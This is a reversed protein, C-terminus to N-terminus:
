GAWGAGFAFNVAHYPRFYASTPDLIFRRAYQGLLYFTKNIRWRSEGLIIVGDAGHELGRAVILLALDVREAARVVLRSWLRHADLPPAYSYGFKAQWRAFELNFQGLAGQRWGAEGISILKPRVLSPANTPQASLSGQYRDVDHFTDFYGPQYGPGIVQYEGQASFVGLQASVGLHLGAGGRETARGSVQGNLDAYVAFRKAGRAYLAHEADLGFATLLVDDTRLYGRADIPETATATRTLPARPDAIFSAGLRTRQDIGAFFALHAAVLRPRVLDDVLLRLRLLDHELAIQLGGHPHDIDALNSYERLLTNHAFGVGRLEGLDLNVVWAALRRRYRLYRLIHVFDSPEDWDRRRVRGDNLGVHLRAGVGLALGGERIRLVSEFTSTPRGALAGLGADVSLSLGQQAAAYHPLGLLLLVVFWGVPRREAAPVVM